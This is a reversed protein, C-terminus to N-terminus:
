KSGMTDVSLMSFLCDLIYEYWIPKFHINDELLIQKVIPQSLLYLDMNIFFNVSNASTENDQGNIAAFANWKNSLSKVISDRLDQIKPNFKGNLKPYIPTTSVVVQCHQPLYTEMMRLVSVKASTAKRTDPNLQIDHGFTTFYLILELRKDKLYAKLIFEPLSTVHCAVHSIDKCKTKNPLIGKLDGSLLSLFEM